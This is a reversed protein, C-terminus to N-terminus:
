LPMTVRMVALRKPFFGGAHTMQEGFIEDNFGHHCFGFDDSLKTSIIEVAEFTLEGDEEFCEPTLGLVLVNSPLNCEEMNEGDTDWQINTLLLQM